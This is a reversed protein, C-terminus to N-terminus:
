GCCVLYLKFAFFFLLFRGDWARATPPPLLFNNRTVGSSARVEGAGPTADCTAQDFMSSGRAKGGCSLTRSYTSHAAYWCSWTGTRTAVATRLVDSTNGRARGESNNKSWCLMMTMRSQGTLFLSRVFESREFRFSTSRGPARLRPAGRGPDSRPAAHSYPCFKAKGLNGKNRDSGDIAAM